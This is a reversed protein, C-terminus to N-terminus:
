NLVPLTFSLSTIRGKKRGVYWSGVRVISGHIRESWLGDVSGGSTTKQRQTIAM